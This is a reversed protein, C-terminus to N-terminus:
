YLIPREAVPVVAKVLVINPPIFESQLHADDTGPPYLLFAFYIKMERGKSAPEFTWQKAATQAAPCLMAVPSNTSSTNIGGAYASDVIGLSNISLTVAVVGSRETIKAMVPYSPAVWKILSPTQASLAISFCTASLIRPTSALSM